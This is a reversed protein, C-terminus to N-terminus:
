NDISDSNGNPTVFSIQVAPMALPAGDKGTMEHETKDRWGLVNKATFIAFTSNYAGKLTGEVLNAQQLDKAKKYAYSFVPKRLSGDPNKATAWDHLTETTVGISVAFRALTPFDGPVVIVKEEGQKDTVTKVETSPKSFFEVLMDAFEERYVTPRGTQKKEPVAVGQSAEVAKAKPQRGRKKPTADKTM